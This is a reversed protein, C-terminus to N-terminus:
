IAHYSEEPFLNLSTVHGNDQIKSADRKRRRELRKRCAPTASLKRAPIIRGCGCACLRKGFSISSSNIVARAVIRAMPIPVGNGVAKYKASRSMGPFDFDRPLGQLECFDAFGRRNSRRGEGAMCLPQSPDIPIFREPSLFHNLRSGYQFHRLRSQASGCERANLDFRQFSFGPITVDPVTPVNELLYWVPNAETVVRAFEELMELGYGTPPSRRAKSFDQCPSGAIIGHFVGPPPSFRRIDGGWLLDPGRVVCFGELEFGRGLLDIGPFLSLVIEDTSM